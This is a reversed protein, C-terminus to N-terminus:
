LQGPRLDKFDVWAHFGQTQLAQTLQEALPKTDAAYSIFVDSETAM